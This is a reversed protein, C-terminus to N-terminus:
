RSKFATAHIGSSRFDGAAAPYTKSSAVLMGYQFAGNALGRRGFPFGHRCSGAQAADGVGDFLGDGRAAARM